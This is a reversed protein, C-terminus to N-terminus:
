LAVGSTEREIYRENACMTFLRCVCFTHNTHRITYKTRWSWVCDVRSIEFEIIEYEAFNPADIQILVVNQNSEEVMIQRQSKKCTLIIRLAISNSSRIIQVQLFNDWWSRSITIRSYIVLDYQTDYGFMYCHLCPIHTCVIYISISTIIKRSTNDLPNYLAFLWVDISTILTSM